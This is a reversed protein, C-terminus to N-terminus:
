SAERERRQQWNAKNRRIRFRDCKGCLREGERAHRDIGVQKGCVDREVPDFKHRVMQKFHDWCYRSGEGPLAPQDCHRCIM